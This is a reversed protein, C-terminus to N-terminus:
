NGSGLELPIQETRGNPLSLSSSSSSSVSFNHNMMMLHGSKKLYLSPQQQQHGAAGMQFSSIGHTINTFRDRDRDRCGGVTGSMSLASTSTSTSPLQLDYHRPDIWSPDSSIEFFVPSPSNARSHPYAPSISQSGSNDSESTMSMFSLSSLNQPEYGSSTSTTGTTTINTSSTSTSSTSTTNSNRLLSTRRPNRKPIGLKFSDNLPSPPLAYGSNIIYNHTHNSSSNAPHHCPTTPSSNSSLPTRFGHILKRQAQASIVREKELRGELQRIRHSSQRSEHEKRERLSRLAERLADRQSEISEIRDAVPGHSLNNELSTKLQKNEIKLTENEKLIDIPNGAAALVELQLKLAPSIGGFIEQAKNDAERHDNQVVVLEDQLRDKEFVVTQLQQETSALQAQLAASNYLPELFVPDHTKVYLKEEAILRQRRETDLRTQLHLVFAARERPYMLLQEADFEAAPDPQQQEDIDSEPLGLERRISDALECTVLRLEDLLSVNRQELSDILETVDSSTASSIPSPESNPPTLLVSHPDQFSSQFETQTSSTIQTSYISGPIQIPSASRDLSTVVKTQELHASQPDQFPKRFETQIPSTMQTSYTPGLFQVPSASRDLMTVIPETPELSPPGLNWGQFSSQFEAKIPSSAQMSYTPGQIQVPSTSKNLMAVVMSATQTAAVSTNIPMLIPSISRSVEPKRLVPINMLIPSISRSVEPNREVPVNMLIPSTSRSVEPNREIPVFVPEEAFHVPSTSKDAYDLKVMPATGSIASLLRQSNSRSISTFSPGPSSYNSINSSRGHYNQAPSTAASSPSPYYTISQSFTSDTAPSDPYYNRAPVIRTGTAMPLPPLSSPPGKSLNLSPPGKTYGSFTMSRNGSPAFGNPHDLHNQHPQGLSSMSRMQPIGHSLTPQSLNHHIPHHVPNTGSRLQNNGMFQPPPNPNYNDSNPEIRRANSANRRYNQSMPAIEGMRGLTPIATTDFNTISRLSAFESPSAVPSEPISENGISYGRDGKRSGSSKRHGISPSRSPQRPRYNGSNVSPTRYNNQPRYSLGQKYGVNLPTGPGPYASGDNFPGSSYNQKSNPTNHILASDFMQSRSQPMGGPGINVPPRSHPPQLM